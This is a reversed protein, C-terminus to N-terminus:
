SHSRAHRRQWISPRAPDASHLYSDHLPAEGAREPRPVDFGAGRLERWQDPLLDGAAAITGRYGCADRLYGALSLGRGDSFHAFDISICAAALVSADIDAPDCDARLVAVHRATNDAM